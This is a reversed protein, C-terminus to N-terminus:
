EVSIRNRGEEKSRYLAKDARSILMDLTVPKGDRCNMQSIGASVTLRLTVGSELTLPDRDLAERIRGLIDVANSGSTEPMLVVFEDGGLRGLIDFDRINERFKGTVYVLAQDGSLHGYTDNIGKFRDVDIIALSVSTRRRIARRIEVSALKMFHRRNYIGSLEDTTAQLRLDDELRKRETIDHIVTVIHNVGNLSFIRASIVVDILTGNKRRLVSQRNECFGKKRTEEFVSRIDDPHSWLGITMNASGVIEGRSYGTNRFFGDSIDSIVGEPYSSIMVADPNTNFVLELHREIEDHMALLNMNVMSVLGFLWLFATMYPVIFVLIQLFDPNFVGIVPFVTLAAFSRVVLFAAYFYFLAALFFSIRRIQKWSYRILSFGSAAFVAASSLYQAVARMSVNHDSVVSWLTVSAFLVGVCLLFMGSKKRGLFALIGSYLCMQGILLLVNTVVASPFVISESLDPRIYLVAYGAASFLCWRFWDRIGAFTRNVFYFQSFVVLQLINLIFLIIVITRIDLQM